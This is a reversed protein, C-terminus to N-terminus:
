VQHGISRVKYDILYSVRFEKEPLITISSDGARIEEPETIEIFERPEAQESLGAERLQEIFELASGDMAPLEGGHLEVLINDVGLGWLAALFHEVTQVSASGESIVSRRQGADSFAASMLMIEPKDELDMRRFVIGANSGATKCTVSGEQGTQLARGSFFDEKGITKKNGSNM